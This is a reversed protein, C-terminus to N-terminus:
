GIKFLVQGFEVVAGNEVCIETITGEQEVPIENLLKMAEIICLVQGKKVRDGVQVFPASEPSSARYFVGVMPSTIDNAGATPATPQPAATQASVTAASPQVPAATAACVSARKISIKSQNEEVEISELDFDKIIKALEKVHDINM